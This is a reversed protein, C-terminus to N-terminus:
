RGAFEAEGALQRIACAGRGFPRFDKEDFSIGSATRGFLCAVSLELCDQGQAALNEVDGIGRSLFESLILFELIQDQSQSGSRPIAVIIGFQAIFPDDDHGVGIDIPSM